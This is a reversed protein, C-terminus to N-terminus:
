DGRRADRRRERLRATSSRPSLRRVGPTRRDGGESEAPHDQGRVGCCGRSGPADRVSRAVRSMDKVVVVEVDGDTADDMLRQYDTRDTDTGTDADAYSRTDAEPFNESVYEETASTQRDLVQMETSVRHYRAVTVCPSVTPIFFPM